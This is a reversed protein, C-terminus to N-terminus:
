YFEFGDVRRATFRMAIEDTTGLKNRCWAAENAWRGAYAPEQAAAAQVLGFSPLCILLARCLM